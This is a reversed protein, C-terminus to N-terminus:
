AVTNKFCCVDILAIEGAYKVRQLLILFRMLAIIIGTIVSYDILRQSSQAAAALAATPLKLRLLAMLACLVALMRRAIVADIEAVKNKLKGSSSYKECSYKPSPVIESQHSSQYKQHRSPFRINM